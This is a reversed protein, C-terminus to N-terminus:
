QGIWGELIRVLQSADYPKHLYRGGPPLDDDRLRLRGSTAIVKIAPWRVRILHALQLGNISGPIQVDTFVVWTDSRKELISIAEAASGAELVDFGAEEITLVATERLLAEDEVVLVIPRGCAQPQM